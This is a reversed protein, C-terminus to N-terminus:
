KPSEANLFLQTLDVLDEIDRSGAYFASLAINEKHALIYYFKGGEDELAEYAKYKFTTGEELKEGEYSQYPFEKMGKYTEVKEEASKDMQAFLDAAAKANYLRFFDLNFNGLSNQGDEESTELETEEVEVSEPKLDEKAHEEPLDMFINYQEPAFYSSISSLKHIKISPYAEELEALPLGTKLYSEEALTLPKQIYVIGLLLIVLLIASVLQTRRYSYGRELDKPVVKSVLYQELLEEDTEMIKLNIIYYLVCVVLAFIESYIRRQLLFMAPIKFNVGIIFQAFIFTLLPGLFSLQKRRKIEGAFKHYLPDTIIREKKKQAEVTSQRAELEASESGQDAAFQRKIKLM